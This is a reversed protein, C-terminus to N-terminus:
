FLFLFCQVLEHVMSERGVSAMEDGGIKEDSDLKHFLAKLLM